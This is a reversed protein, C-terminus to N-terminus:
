LVVVRLSHEMPTVNSPNRRAFVHAHMYSQLHDSQSFFAACADCKFANEEAHTRVHKLTRSYISYSYEVFTVNLRHQGICSWTYCFVVM